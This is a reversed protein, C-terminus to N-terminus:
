RSTCSRGSGGSRARRLGRLRRRVERRVGAQDGLVRPQQAQAARRPQCLRVQRIRPGQPDQCGPWARAPRGQRPEFRWRWSPRPHGSGVRKGHDAGHVRWGYSGFWDEPTGHVVSSARFRTSASTTGTSCSLLPERPGPGLRQEQDRSGRGRHARGRGRLRLGERGEGRRPAPGYGRGGGAPTGHGSPGTNFKFFLTKGEMEAHGALGGNRRFGLLDEWVLAASRREPREYKEDGTRKHMERLAENYVPLMAYVLPACHGAVLVFRDAFPLEPRRIDWRMAGSLTTAVLAHVKSRSGGPHGSQRYNLMMDIFQDICDKIIEWHGFNEAQRNFLEDSRADATPTSM